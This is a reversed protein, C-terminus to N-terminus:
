MCAAQVHINTVTVDISICVQRDRTHALSCVWPAVIVKFDRLAVMSTGCVMM